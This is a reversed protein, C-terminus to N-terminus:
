KVRINVYDAVESRWALADVVRSLLMKTVDPGLDHCREDQLMINSRPESILTLMPQGPSLSM